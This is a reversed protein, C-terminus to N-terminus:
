TPKFAWLQQSRPPFREENLCGQLIATACLQWGLCRPDCFRPTLPALVGTLVATGEPTGTPCLEPFGVYATLTGEARGDALPSQGALRCDRWTRM